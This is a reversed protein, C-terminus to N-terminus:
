MNAAETSLGAQQWNTDGEQTKSIVRKEFEVVIKSGYM